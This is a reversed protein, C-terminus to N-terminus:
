PPESGRLPSTLSGEAPWHSATKVQKKMSVARIVTLEGRAEKVEDGYLGLVDDVIKADYMVDERWTAHPNVETPAVKTEIATDSPAFQQGPRSRRECAREEPM